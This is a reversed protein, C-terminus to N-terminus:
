LPPPHNHHYFLVLYLIRYHESILPSIRLSIGSQESYHDTEVVKFTSKFASRSSLLLGIPPNDGPQMDHKQLYKLYLEMQGKDQPKFKGIKIDIAVLCMPENVLSCLNIPGRVSTRRRSSMPATEANRLYVNQRLPFFVSCIRESRVRKGVM